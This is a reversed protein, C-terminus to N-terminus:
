GRPKVPEVLKVVAWLVRNAPTPVALAAGSLGGTRYFLVQGKGPPPAPITM